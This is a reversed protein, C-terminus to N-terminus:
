HQEDRRCLSLTLNAAVVRITITLPNDTASLLPPGRQNGDATGNYAFVCRHCLVATSRWNKASELGSHTTGSSVATLDSETSTVTASILCNHRRNSRNKKAVIKKNGFRTINRRLPRYSLLKMSSMCVRLHRVPRKDDGVEEGSKERRQQGRRLHVTPYAARCIQWFRWRCSSKAALHVQDSESILPM